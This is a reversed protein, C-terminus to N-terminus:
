QWCCLAEDGSEWVLSAVPGFQHDRQRYLSFSYSSRESLGLYPLSVLIQGALAEGILIKPVSGWGLGALIAEVQMLHTSVRWYRQGDVSGYGPASDEFDAVYIQPITAETERLRDLKDARVVNCFEVEGLLRGELGANRRRVTIDFLVALDAEGTELRRLPAYDQGSKVEVSTDPFQSTAKRILDIWVTQPIAGDIAIRLQPEVGTSLLTAFDRLSRAQNVALRARKVFSEGRETLRARYSSRDLLPFGVADELRHIAQTVAPQTRGLVGAAGRVSGTDAIAVIAALDTGSFM